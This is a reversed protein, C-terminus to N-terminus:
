IKQIEESHRHKAIFALDDIPDHNHSCHEKITEYETRLEDVSQWNIPEGADLEAIRQAVKRQFANLDEANRQLVDAKASNATGWEMLSIVLLFVGLCVSLATLYNDLLTGSQTSYIRQLFALAVTLASFFALSITSILERRKLRRSANYRASSTRWADTRINQLFKRM